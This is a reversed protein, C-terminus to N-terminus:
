LSIADWGQLGLSGPKPPADMGGWSRWGWIPLTQHSGQNSSAAKEVLGNLRQLRWSFIPETRPAPAEM